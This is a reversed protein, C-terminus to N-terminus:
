ALAMLGPLTRVSVKAGRTLELIENRRQRSVSPVALLVDSVDLQTVWAVLQRPNYINLGNLVQGHLHEDDDLYGVARMQIGSAIAAALQRGASGAGYILVRPLDGNKRHNLYLGSFWYRALARSAGVGLLLLIPQLLGLTRPVGQLGLMTLVGAYLVGYFVVAKIVAMLADWGAFRFIARYLGSAAFVPLALSLSLWVALWGSTGLPVWGAAALCLALWVTVTCLVADIALVLVRKTSRPMALLQAIFQNIM